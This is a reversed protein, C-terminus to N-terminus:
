KNSHSNNRHINHDKKTNQTYKVYLTPKKYLFKQM